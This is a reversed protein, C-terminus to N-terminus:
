YYTMGIMGDYTTKLLDGTDGKNIVDIILVNQGTLDITKILEDYKEKTCYLVEAECNILKEVIEQGYIIKHMVKENSMNDFIYALKEHNKKKIRRKYIPHHHLQM